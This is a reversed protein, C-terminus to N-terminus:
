VSQGLFRLICQSSNLSSVIAESSLRLTKRFKEKGQIQAPEPENEDGVLNSAAEEPPSTQTGVSYRTVIKSAPEEAV